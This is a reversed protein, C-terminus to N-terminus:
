EDESVVVESTADYELWDEIIASSLVPVLADNASMESFQLPIILDVANALIFIFYILGFHNGSDYLSELHLTVAEIDIATVWLAEYLSYTFAGSIIQAAECASAEDFTGSVSTGKKVDLVIQAYESTTM